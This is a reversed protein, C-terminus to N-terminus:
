NPDLSNLKAGTASTFLDFIGQYNAWDPPTAIITLMGEQKCAAVLDAPVSAGGGGGGTTPAQTAKPGCAALLSVVVLMSFFTFLTKRTKMRMEGKSTFVQLPCVGEM